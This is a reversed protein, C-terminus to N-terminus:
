GEYFNDMIYKIHKKTKEIFDNFLTNNIYNIDKPGLRVINYKNKAIYLDNIMFLIAEQMSEIGNYVTDISGDTYKTERSIFNNENVNLTISIIEKKM